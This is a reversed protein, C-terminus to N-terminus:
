QDVGEGAGDSRALMEAHAEHDHVRDVVQSGIEVPRV